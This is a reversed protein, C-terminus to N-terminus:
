PREELRYLHTQTRVWLAEGAAAPSAMCGTDLPNDALRRFTRDAAIVVTNGSESFCYLRDRTALPSASYNGGLRESWVLKGSM